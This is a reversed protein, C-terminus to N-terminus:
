PRRSKKIVYLPRNKVESHIHAIYLSILGLNVMVVGILFLTLIGLKAPGSFSLSNSYFFDNIAIFIGLPLSLTVIIIGLYGSLKLPALSMSVFTDTALMVLKRTSYSAAGHEREAADFSVFEREYGLWDILGRVIRGRETFARYSEVVSKDLLRFDTAHPIIPVKSIRQLIAYFLKSGYQKVKSDKAHERRVGIVVDAGAEWKKIFTPIIKPPHQLDADMMIVADGKAHHLGATLAVEKGFNRALNIAVVRSNKTAINAILTSSDDTSGDNILVLEYGYGTKKMVAETAAVLQM